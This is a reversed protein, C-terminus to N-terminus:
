FNLKYLLAGFQKARCIELLYAHTDQDRHRIIKFDSAYKRYISKLVQFDLVYIKREQMSVVCYYDSTCHMNGPAFRNDDKYYVEEECLINGTDAIRSDNKVEIYFEKNDGVVRIDGKYYCQPDDSVDEFTYNTTLSALTDRVIKEAAKANALDEYFEKMM